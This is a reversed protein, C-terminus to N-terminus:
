VFIGSPKELEPSETTFDGDSSTPTVLSDKNSQRGHPQPIFAPQSAFKPRKKFCGECREHGCTCIKDSHYKRFGSCKCCYQRARWLRPERIVRELGEKQKLLSPHEGPFLEQYLTFFRRRAPTQPSANEIYHNPLPPYSARSSLDKPSSHSPPYAPVQHIEDLLHFDHLFLGEWDACEKVVIKDHYQVALWALRKLM